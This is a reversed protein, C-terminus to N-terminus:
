PVIKRILHNATDAVFITGLSTIAVGSPGYFTATSVNSSGSYGSGTLTTVVGASTIKRIRHNISDTVYVNGSTDVAVGSPRSFSAAAGTGDAFAESGSGALTTVVGSSTIKRIRYNFTDAVYVNGSADVAVGSPRCFSAAAGTGDAFAESGSGALTTVVGSSTIKRIRHNFTDAVYVNGSADVAVGEPLNFKAATGTGDTFGMSGAGALRTVVGVSTIKRIMNNNSDAVYVNGSADVAVGSPRSFSAAVGTGDAFTQNGSGALTTVVGESTIKRIRNNQTDAVYVNGSADVAVDSPYNFSAAVGTGNVFAGSGSGAFITVIPSYLSFSRSSSFTTTGKKVVVTLSHRYDGIGPSLTFINSTAGGVIAGDLYWIYRDVPESTSAYVYASAANMVESLGNLTVTIRPPNVVLMGLGGNIIYQTSTIASDPQGSLYAIAKVTQSSSVIFAGTYLTGHTSTPDSLDTTFRISVGPTTSTLTLNQATTYTGAPVSFVPAAVQNHIIYAIATPTSSIFGDRFAVATVTENTTVAIPSSYINGTTSIPTSGDTTYRITAGSTPTTLSLSQPIDYTGGAVSFSPSACKFVYDTVASASDNFGSLFAVATVTESTALTIPATYLTGISSTPTTGDTTYRISASSTATTMTLTKTNDYTGSAVDLIPTACKLVYEASSVVSDVFGPKVVIVKISQSTIISVPSSYLTGNSSSPTSGDTTFYISADATSTGLTMTQTNNYTGSALSISPTGCKMIYDASAVASNTWSSFYAIAKITQSAAITIPGSYLTGATGTPISGDLTFRIAAGVTSTSLTLTQVNEYTGSALSISPTAVTGGDAFDEVAYALTGSSVISAYLLVSEMRPPTLLQSNKKLSIVLSYSGAPRTGTFSAQSGAITLVIEESTGGDPTLTAIASDVSVTAPWTVGLSLTGNGTEPVLQITANATGGAPVTISSTASAVIAGALNKGKVSITWDGATISTNSYTSSTQSTEAITASDPGSGSFVYSTIAIDADTPMITRATSLDMVKIVLSGIEHVKTDPLKCSSFLVTLVIILVYLKRFM